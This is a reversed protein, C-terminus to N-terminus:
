DPVVMGLVFHWGSFDSVIFAAAKKKGEFDYRTTGAKMILIDKVSTALSENRLRAPEELLWKIESHLATKGEANLAFFYMEKPLAIEKALLESLQDLFVSAGVAGVFKGKKMIPVALVVAKKGTSRSVVLEGFAEKGSKLLAFYARDSVNQGTLGSESSFYTGDPRFFLVVSPIQGKMIERLLGQMRNWEGSRVDETVAAARLASMVSSLHSDALSQLAKLGMHLDITLKEAPVPDLQAAFVFYHGTMLLVLALTLTKKKMRGGQNNQVM